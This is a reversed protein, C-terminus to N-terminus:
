RSEIGLSHNLNVRLMTKVEDPRFDFLLDSGAETEVFLRTNDGRHILNINRRRPQRGMNQALIVGFSMEVLAYSRTTQPM